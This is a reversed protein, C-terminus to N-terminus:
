SQTEKLWRKLGEKILYVRCAFVHSCDTNYKQNIISGKICDCNWKQIISNGVKEDWLSVLYNNTTGEVEFWLRVFGEKNETLSIPKIKKNILLSLAKNENM